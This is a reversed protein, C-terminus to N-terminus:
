ATARPDDTGARASASRWGLLFYALPGVINVFCAAVWVPKPATLEAAPRRALDHLAAALLGTQVAGLLLIWRRQAPDLREALDLRMAMSREETEPRPHAAAVRGINEGPRPWRCPGLDSFTTM